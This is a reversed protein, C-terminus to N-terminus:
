VVDGAAVSPVLPPRGGGGWRSGKYIAFSIQTQPTRRTGVRGEMRLGGAPPLFVGRVPERRVSVGRGGGAGGVSVQAGCMGPPPRAGFLQAAPPRIGLAALLAVLTLVSLLWGNRRFRNIGGRTTTM